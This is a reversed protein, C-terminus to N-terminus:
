DFLGKERDIFQPRLMNLGLHKNLQEVVYDALEPSYREDHQHMFFWVSQLGMQQWQKIREVWEDVRTYDTPRLSNGVFRIFAHPTPLNMHVVDRRGSADTIVAGINLEHLLNFIANSNEPVAFWEKHRLELFLPIDKPLNELYAKLDPLSKHTFNDSLQLFLPGLKEGFALIGEYYKTTVEDANKLRRIHTITQSFKPCFKFEPNGATKEKWKAITEPGYTNYFTANLEISNFHKVYEDLFTAEKTKPPYIKGLWEKRGWKACGVHVKLSNATNAATLTKVTLEPDPPLTFDVTFLEAADVRGFEM